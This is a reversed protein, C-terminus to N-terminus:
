RGAAWAPPPRRRGRRSSRQRRHSPRRGGGRRGGSRRASDAHSLRQFLKSENRKGPVLVKMASDKDDLRLNAMRRKDDPGHCAFCNDSLVPRIHRDFDVKGVKGTQAWVSAVIGTALIIRFKYM